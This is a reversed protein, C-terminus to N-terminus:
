MRYICQTGDTTIPNEIDKHGFVMTKTKGINIKLGASNAAVGLVYTNQQLFELIEELLNNDDAIKLNKVIIYLHRHISVGTERNRTEDM